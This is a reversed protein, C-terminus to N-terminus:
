QAAVGHCADPVASEPGSHGWLQAWLQDKQRLREREGCLPLPTGLAHSQSVNRQETTVMKRERTRALPLGAGNGPGREWSARAAKDTDALM